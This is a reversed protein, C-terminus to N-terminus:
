EDEKKTTKITKLYTMSDLMELNLSIKGSRFATSGFFKDVMERNTGNEFFKNLEDILKKHQRYKELQRGHYWVEFFPDLKEADIKLYHEGNYFDKNDDDCPVLEIFPWYEKGPRPCECFKNRFERSKNLEDFFYTSGGKEIYDLRLAKKLEMNSLGSYKFLNEKSLMGLAELVPILNNSITSLQGRIIGVMSDRKRYDIRVFEANEPHFPYVIPFPDAGMEIAREDQPKRNKFKDFLSM